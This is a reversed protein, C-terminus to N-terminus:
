ENNRKNTIENKEKLYRILGNIIQSVRIAQNKSLDFEKENIYKQDFAVFLLSQLENSSRRSIVLFRIFELYSKAASGEAINSMISVAARQIQDRLGYDKSFLDNKAIKYITNVLDRAEKWADLETFEKLM